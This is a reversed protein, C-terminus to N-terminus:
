PPPPPPAPPIPHNRHFGASKSERIREGTVGDFEVTKEEGTKFNKYQVTFRPTYIVAREEVEFLESVLRSVDKPRQAIRSRLVNLDADGAVEQAGFEELIDKPHSESPASPLKELTVDNGSQDLVLSAKIYNQLREEGELKIVNRPRRSSDDSQEPSLKADLLVVELVERDIDISYTCKRYFDIFYRGSIMSYPEYYKGMSVFQVENQKPRLIGFRTFLQDKIKEGAVKIVTPDVRTEYVITKRELIKENLFATETSIVIDEDHVAETL